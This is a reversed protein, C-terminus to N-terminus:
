PEAHRFEALQTRTRESMVVNGKREYRALAQELAEAAEQMRGAVSLVEALDAYTEAQGGLWDTDEAIAVAARAGGSRRPTTAAVRSFRPGSTGRCCRRSRTMARVL